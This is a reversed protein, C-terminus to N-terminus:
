ALLGGEDDPTGVESQRLKVREIERQRELDDFDDWDGVFPKPRVHIGHGAEGKPLGGRLDEIDQCM